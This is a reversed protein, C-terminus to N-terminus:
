SQPPAQAQQIKLVQGTAAAGGADRFVYGLVAGIALWAQSDDGHNTYILAFAGLLVLIAVAYTFATRLMDSSMTHAEVDAIIAIIAGLAVAILTGVVGALQDSLKDTTM